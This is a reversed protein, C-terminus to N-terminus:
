FRAVLWPTYTFLKQDPNAQTYQEVWKVYWRCANRKVGQKQICEIHRDWFKAATSDIKSKYNNM